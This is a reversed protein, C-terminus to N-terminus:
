MYSMNVFHFLLYHRWLHLAWLKLVVETNLSLKPLFLTLLCKTMYSTEMPLMLSHQLSCQLHTYSPLSQCMFTKNISHTHVTCKQIQFNEMNHVTIAILITLSLPILFIGNVTIFTLSQLNSFNKQLIVPINTSQTPQALITTKVSTIKRPVWIPVMQLCPNFM